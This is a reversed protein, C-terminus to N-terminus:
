SVTGSAPSTATASSYPPKDVSTPLREEPPCYEPILNKLCLIIADRDNQQTAQELATLAEDLCDPVFHSANSAIFIKKHLTREYKEGPVFLEEYLKEGPRLGTYTIEIDRGVELGSLRILDTAMDVIRVPEGMDLLFVEGGKGLVAAQLVLQVAEPITMFYRRMEPHTVTVPGGAAIQKRFTLLVSGRSGLVNGFRVAMYAGHTHAGCQHVVLEAARKSAGMVSTPNVAKDTSILIFREVDVMRAAEVVNRTGFINNTIAEVPNAEMLPVHKHAAAHFVIHPRHEQFLAVIRNRFRVDAIVPTIVVGGKWMRQNEILLENHIEFISNEGHGVLIMEAPRCRLIQRCLESGISGGAGTVMIRKNRLLESVAATDTQIPERRLLDEISVNRIQSLHVTGDILEYLGPVTRPHIGAKECIHVIERIERGSATPMAIIIQDISHRKVLEPIAQRNGLVPVGNLSLKRKAPDDDVFGVVQLGLARNNQIERLVMAGADGAGVILVLGPNQIFTRLKLLEHPRYREQLLRLLFRSGALAGLSLLSELLWISRSPMHAVGALPLAGFNLMFILCSSVLGAMIIMKMEVVSAYRWMRNYLRFGYYVPLRVAPALLFYIWNQKLYPWISILAEYRIVFAFVGAALILVLDLAMLYRVRLGAQATRFPKQVHDSKM